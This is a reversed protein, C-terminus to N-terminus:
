LGTLAQRFTANNPEMDLARQFMGKAKDREGTQVHITGLRFYAEGMTIGVSPDIKQLVLSRYVRKAKEWEKADVYLDGLGVMTAVNTPDIRFAEEYAALARAADGSM